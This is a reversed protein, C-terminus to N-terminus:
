LPTDINNNQEFKKFAMMYDIAKQTGIYTMAIATWETGTLKGTFLAITAIITITLTKSISKNLYKDIFERRSM